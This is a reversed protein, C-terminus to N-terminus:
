GKPALNESEEEDGHDLLEYLKKLFVNMFLDRDEQTKFALVGLYGNENGFKLYERGELDSNYAAGTVGTGIVVGIAGGVTVLAIVPLVFSYSGAGLLVLTLLSTGAATAGIKSVETIFSGVSLRSSWSSKQLIRHDTYSEILTSELAQPTIVIKEEEEILKCGMLHKSGDHKMFDCINLRLKNAESLEIVLVNNVEDFDSAKLTCNRQKVCEFIEKIQIENLDPANANSLAAVFLASFIILFKM